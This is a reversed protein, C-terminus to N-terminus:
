EYDHIFLKCKFIKASNQKLDVKIKGKAVNYKQDATSHGERTTELMQQCVASNSVGIEWVPIEVTKDHDNNNVVIVVQDHEDFRGYAIVNYEGYLFKLSGTRLAPIAKRLSILSRHLAILETNENGWPYTRRNDPDTWGAVGAEDGYYITPAGVWTMQIVVAEKMVAIDLNENAAEAGLTHTRGVTRNTRTLFRSHDHNSLQNMAVQLSQTHFRAMNYKMADFFSQHNGLLDVRFEDSHKQMGTLFWSVPEMFADYNMVTDWQDGHILWDSPDGYHEAIIIAEPKVSKVEKRFDKWFKHNFEKTYGLDAAVDLRWGDVDFPPSMWKKAIELVYNYLKPSGEYNLKPLTDHGWWGDYHPNDPWAEKNHFHFFSYYPSTKAGYAGVPYNHSNAYFKERDMWKNFSGCHNFVGDLIVKMNRAHIEHVLNAFLDNSAELNVTETTRTIYKKAHSNDKNAEDLVEDADKIITGYHPDVYDYDQTDYKHNSPSVFIPNFYVVDVGLEKLYDLKELVGKLDGGYFESVGNKDPLKNWDTVQKALQNIYMYENDVVDNEQDGNFFRDVFIQYMVAGKAWDPTKFGPMIKFDFYHDPERTIGKKNYYIILRGTTLKFYYSFLKEKVKITYEYYDFYEDSSALEMEFCEGQYCIYANDLNSKGARLRIVVPSNKSPEAPIRYNETEDSFIAKEDLIQQRTSFYTFMKQTRSMQAFPIQISM